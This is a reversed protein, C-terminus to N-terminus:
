DLITNLVLAQVRHQVPDMTAIGYGTEELKTKLRAPDLWGNGFAESLHCVRCVWCYRVCERKCPSAALYIYREEDDVRLLIGHFDDYISDDVHLRVSVDLALSQCCM